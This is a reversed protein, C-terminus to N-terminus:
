RIWRTEYSVGPDGLARLAQRYAADVKRRSPGRLDLLVRRDPTLGALDIQVAGLELPLESLLPRGDLARSERTAHVRGVRDQRDLVRNSLRPVKVPRTSHAEQPQRKSASRPDPDSPALAGVTAVAMTLVAAVALLRLRM